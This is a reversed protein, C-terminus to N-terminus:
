RPNPFLRQVIENFEAVFGAVPHGQQVDKVYNNVRDVFQPNTSVYVNRIDPDVARVKDAIQDEIERTLKKQNPDLAAAVYANRRTVLVNATHVGKIKTINEAAKDAIEIREEADNPGNNWRNDDGADRNARYGDTGANDRSLPQVARNGTNNPNVPNQGNPRNTTCGAVLLLSAIMLASAIRTYSRKVM